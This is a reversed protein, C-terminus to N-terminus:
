LLIKEEQKVQENSVKQIMAKENKFEEDRLYKSKALLTAVPRM